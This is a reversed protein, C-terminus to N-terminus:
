PGEPPPLIQDLLALDDCAEAGSDTLKWGDECERALLGRRVLLSLAGEREAESMGAPLPEGDYSLFWSTEGHREEFAKRFDEFVRRANNVRRSM